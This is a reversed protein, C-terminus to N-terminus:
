EEPSSHFLQTVLIKWLNEDLRASANTIIEEGDGYVTGLAENEFFSRLKAKIQDFHIKMQFSDMLDPLEEKLNNPKIKLIWGEGYPSKNVISPDKKLKENVEIVTGGLPSLQKLNRKGHYVKWAEKGKIINMGVSPTEIAEIEGIVKQTLDDLGLSVVNKGEIKAWAHGNHYYFGQPFRIQNGQFSFPIIKPSIRENNLSLEIAAQRQTKRQKLFEITLAVALTLFVLIIVM